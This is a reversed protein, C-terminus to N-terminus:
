APEADPVPKVLDHAFIGKGLYLAPPAHGAQWELDGRVDMLIAKPNRALRERAEDVTIENVRSRTDNVLRLFGPAHQMLRLIIRAGIRDVSKESLRQQGNDAAPTRPSSVM